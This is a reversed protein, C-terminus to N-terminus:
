SITFDKDGLPKGWLEELVAEYEATHKGFEENRCIRWVVYRLPRNHLATEVASRFFLPWLDHFHEKNLHTPVFWEDFANHWYIELRRWEDTDIQPTWDDDMWRPPLDHKIQQFRERFTLFANMRAEALARHEASGARSLAVYSLVLSVSSVLVTSIDAWDQPSMNQM